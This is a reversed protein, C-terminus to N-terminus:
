PSFIWIVRGPECHDGGAASLKGGGGKTLDTAKGLSKLQMPLWKEGKGGVMDESREKRAMPVQRNFGEAVLRTLCVAEAIPGLRDSRIQWRLNERRIARSRGSLPKRRSWLNAFSAAPAAKRHNPRFIALPLSETASPLPNSSDTGTRFQCVVAELRRKCCLSAGPHAQIPRKPFDSSEPAGNPASPCLQAGEGTTTM